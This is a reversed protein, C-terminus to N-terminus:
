YEIYHQTRIGRLSQHFKIPYLSCKLPKYWVCTILLISPSPSIPNFSIASPQYDHTSSCLGGDEFTTEDAVLLCAQQTEMTIISNQEQLTNSAQRM